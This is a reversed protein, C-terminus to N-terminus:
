LTFVTPIKAKRDGSGLVYNNEQNLLEKIVELEGNWYVEKLGQSDEISVHGIAKDIGSM